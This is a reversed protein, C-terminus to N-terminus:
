PLTLDWLSQVTVKKEWAGSSMDWKVDYGVEMPLGPRLWFGNHEFHVLSGEPYDLWVWAAIGRTAEVRFKKTSVLHTLRLGPDVLKAQSLPVPHFWNQHRFERSSRTNPLEGRVSTEMFLIANEPAIGRLIQKTNGQFVRTTNIADVKVPM